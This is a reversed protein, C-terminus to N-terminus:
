ASKRKKRAFGLGALGIGFLALTAPEPVAAVDGSRVAWGYNGAIEGVPNQSGNGYFFAWPNIPNFVTGSWYNSQVDTLTVDGLTHNGTLNDGITGGLNYYYMYGLENDRCDLETVSSCDVVSRNTGTPVGASVSMSALRWDDFGLYNLSSAWAVQNTGSDLVSISADTTWTIKLVDDYAAAGSLRSLLTAQAPLVFGLFIVTAFVRSTLSIM